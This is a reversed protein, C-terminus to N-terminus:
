RLCLWLAPAPFNPARERRLLSFAPPVIARRFQQFTSRRGRGPPAPWRAAPAPWHWFAASWNTDEAPRVKRFRNGSLDLRAANRLQPVIAIRLAGDRDLRIDRGP